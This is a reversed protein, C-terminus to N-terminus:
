ALPPTRNLAKRGTSAASIQAQSNPGDLFIDIYASSSQYYPRPSDVASERVDLVRMLRKSGARCGCMDSRRRSVM